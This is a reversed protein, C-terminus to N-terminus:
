RRIRKVAEELSKRSEEERDIGKKGEGGGLRHAKKDAM